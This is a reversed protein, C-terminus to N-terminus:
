LAPLRAQAAAGEAAIWATSVCCHLPSKKASHMFGDPTAAVRMFCPPRIQDVANQGGVRRIAAMMPNTM